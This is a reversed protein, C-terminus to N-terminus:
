RPTGANPSQRGGLGARGATPAVSGKVGPSRAPLAAKRTQQALYGPLVGRTCWGLYVGGTSGQHVGGGRTSTFTGGSM